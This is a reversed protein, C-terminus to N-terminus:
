GNVQQPFHSIIKLTPSNYIFSNHVDMYLVKYSYIDEKPFIALLTIEPDYPFHINGKIHFHCATKWFLQSM